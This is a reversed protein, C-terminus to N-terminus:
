SETITRVQNLSEFLYANLVEERYSKNFREIFGNQDPKVPQIYLLDIKLSQCWDTLATSTFEAGNDCRLAQPKCHM